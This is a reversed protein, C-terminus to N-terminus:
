RIQRICKGETVEWRISFEELHDVFKALCKNWETDRLWREKDVYTKHYQLDHEALLAIFEESVDEFDVFNFIGGLARREPLPRPSEPSRFLMSILDLRELHQFSAILTM